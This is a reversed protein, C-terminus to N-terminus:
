EQSREGPFTLGRMYAAHMEEFAAPQMAGPDVRWELVMGRLLAGSGRAIERPPLTFELGHREGVAEILEAVADIFRDRAARLRERLSPDDAAHSTFESVLPWWTPEDEYAQLMFRAVARWTAESSRQRPVLSRYMATRAEYREDLVALFLDDKGAFNSYVAGKTYGAADAIEDLSAAHFGRALFVRRAAAVIDERTRAKKEARNLRQTRARAAEM